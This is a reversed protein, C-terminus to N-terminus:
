RNGPQDRGGGQGDGLFGLFILGNLKHESMYDICKKFDAGYDEKTKLYPNRCGYSQEGVVGPVWSTSHDWNWFIRYPLEPNDLLDLSDTYAEGNSVNLQFNLLEGCAYNVAAGSGGAVVLVPRSRDHTTLLLIGEPGLRRVRSDGALRRIREDKTADGILIIPRNSADPLSNLEFSKRTLEQLVASVHLGCSQHEGAVILASVGEGCITFRNEKQTSESLSVLPSTGLNDGSRMLM